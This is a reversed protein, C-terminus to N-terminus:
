ARVQGAPWGGLAQLRMASSFHRFRKLFHRSHQQWTAWHSRVTASMGLTYMEVTDNELGGGIVKGGRWLQVREQLGQQVQQLSRLVVDPVLHVQGEERLGQGLQHLVDVVRGEGVRRPLPPVQSLAQTEWLCWTCWKGGQGEGM